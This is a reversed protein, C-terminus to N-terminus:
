LKEDMSKETFKGEFQIVFPEHFTISDEQNLYGHRLMINGKVSWHNSLKEGSLTGGSIITTDAFSCFCSRRYLFTLNQISEESFDFATAGQEIEFLFFDEYEDDETNQREDKVFHRQFVINDGTEIYPHEQILQTREFYNM